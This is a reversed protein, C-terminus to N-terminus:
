ALLMSTLRGVVLLIFTLVPRVVRLQRPDVMTLDPVTLKFVVFIVVIIITLKFLFIISYVVSNVFILSKLFGILFFSILIDVDIICYLLGKIMVM